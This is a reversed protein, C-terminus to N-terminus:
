GPKLRLKEFVLRYKNDQAERADRRCGPYCACTYTM